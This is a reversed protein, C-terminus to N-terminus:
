AMAAILVVALRELLWEIVKARICETASPAVKGVPAAASCCGTLAWAVADPSLVSADYAILVSGTLHNCTAGQVGAM